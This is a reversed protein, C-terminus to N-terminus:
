KPFRIFFSHVNVTGFLAASPRGNDFSHSFRIIPSQFSREQVSPIGRKLLLLLKEMTIGEYRLRAHCSLLRRPRGLFPLSICEPIAHQYYYLIGSAYNPFRLILTRAVIKSM